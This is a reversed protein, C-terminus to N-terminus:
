KKKEFVVYNAWAGVGNSGYSIRMYGKEGWGTGWSNKLIWYQGSDSWGVLNVAHNLGRAYGKFIGGRYRTFANDAAVGVSVIGYQFIAAKIEDNSPKDQGPLYSWSQIKIKHNLNSRCPEDRGSYKWESGLVGGFPEMHRNYDFFGGRCSYEGPRTCSLVHQESTDFTESLQYAISDQITASMSFAWCSGCSGQNEVPSFKAKTRADFEAPLAVLSKVSAVNQPAFNEPVVLGKGFSEVSEGTSCSLSLFMSLFLLISRNM